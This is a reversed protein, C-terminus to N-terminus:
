TTSLNEDDFIYPKKGKAIRKQNVDWGWKFLYMVQKYSMSSKNQNCRRCLCIMNTAEDKGGLSIPVKHDLTLNETSLCFRCRNKKVYELLKKKKKINM